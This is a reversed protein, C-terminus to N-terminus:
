YGSYGSGRIALRPGDTINKFWKSDLEGPTVIKTMKWYKGICNTLFKRAQSRLIIKKICTRM